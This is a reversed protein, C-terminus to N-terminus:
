PVDGLNPRLRDYLDPDRPDIKIAESYDALAKEYEKTGDFLEGRAVYAARNKADLRIAETYDAIIDRKEPYPLGRADCASCACLTPMHTPPSWDFQRPSTLSRRTMSEWIRGLTDVTISDSPPNQISDSPRPSTRSPKISNGPTMGCAAVYSFRMCESPNLQITETYDAVAKEYKKEEYFAQGRLLYAHASKPDLRIAETFEAIAEGKKELM